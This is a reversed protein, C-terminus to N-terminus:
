GGKKVKKKLYDMKFTGKPTKITGSLKHNTTAKRVLKLVDSRDTFLRGKKDKGYVSKDNIYLSNGEKDTYVKM